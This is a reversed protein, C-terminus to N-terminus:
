DAYGITRQKQIENNMDGSIQDHQETGGAAPFSQSRIGKSDGSIRGASKMEASPAPLSYIRASARRTSLAWEIPGLTEFGPPQSPRLEADAAFRHSEPNTPGILIAILLRLFAM